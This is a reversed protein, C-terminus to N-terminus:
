EDDRWMRRRRMLMKMERGFAELRVPEQVRGIQGEGIEEQRSQRERRAGEACDGAGDEDDV